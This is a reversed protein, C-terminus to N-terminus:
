WDPVEARAAVLGDLQGKIDVLLIAALEAKVNARSAGHVLYHTELHGVAQAGDASWRVFLLAGAFAEPLDDDDERSVVLMEVSYAAGDSGGFAPPRAHKDLYGGLTGDPLDDTRLM